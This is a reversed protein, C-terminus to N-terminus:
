NAVTLGVTTPDIKTIKVAHWDLFNTINSCGFVVMIKYNLETSESVSESWKWSIIMTLQQLVPVRLFLVSGRGM